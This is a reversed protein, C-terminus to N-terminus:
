RFPDCLRNLDRFYDPYTKATCGPDLIRIGPARLGILAFSMAMRHDDYTRVEGPSVPGPYITMGDAHEDARVGLRQLETVVATIRDTEKHRVHAINRITTPGDAFPAVAALTQATDSIANMDIDIGRLPRGQITIRDVGWEVDCGMQELADVFHVDGQLADRSLGLVTIRGGTIAALGFFYSAASADPEIDYRGGRYTQPRIRYAGPQVDVTVGFQRMVGLTMEIYPESVMPGTLRLELSSRACPAAMLAASLFQSSKEASVSAVGGELGQSTVVVPPSNTGLESRVKVGLQALTELLDDIPRQRMRDNGDLRYIGRGLACMATLFRISTGSNELWLNAEGVPIKGRCGVIEVTCAGSDALVHLGLRKLSDLMVQTDRSDLVGTLHSPGDALAAVVLARNTLSKSGPPRIEGAVPRLIPLIEIFKEANM